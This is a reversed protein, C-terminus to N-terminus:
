STHMNVLGCMRAFKCRIVCIVGAPAATLPNQAGLNLSWLASLAGQWAPGLLRMALATHLLLCCLMRGRKAYYLRSCTLNKM